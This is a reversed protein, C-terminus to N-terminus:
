DGKYFISVTEGCVNKYTKEIKDIRPDGYDKFKIIHLNGNKGMQGVTSTTVYWTRGDNVIDSSGGTIHKSYINNVKGNPVLKNFDYAVTASTGAMIDYAWIQNDKAYFLVSNNINYIERSPSKLFGPLYGEPIEELLNPSIFIGDMWTYEMDAILRFLKGQKNKFIGTICSGNNGKGWWVAELGLNNPDWPETKKVNLEKIDWEFGFDFSLFRMNANDYLVMREHFISTYPSFYYDGLLPPSFQAEGERRIYCRGDNIIFDGYSINVRIIKGHAQPNIIDPRDYFIESYFREKLMSASNLTVGGRNDKCFLFVESPGESVLVPYEGLQQGSVGGYLEYVNGVSNVMSLSLAGDTTGLMMIGESYQGTVKVKVTQKGWRGSIPDKAEMYFVYNDPYLEVRYNLDKEVGLTDIESGKSDPYYYWLYELEGADEPMTQSVKMSLRLTDFLQILQDSITDITIENIDKYLYIGKDKMCATFLSCLIICFCIKRM